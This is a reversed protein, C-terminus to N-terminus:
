YWNWIKSITNKKRPLSLWSWLFVRENETETETEFCKMGHQLDFPFKHKFHFVMGTNANFHKRAYSVIQAMSKIGELLQLCVLLEMSNYIFFKGLSFFAFFFTFFLSFEMVFATRTRVRQVFLCWMTQQQLQTKTPNQKSLRFYWGHSPSSLCPKFEIQSWMTALLFLSSIHTM